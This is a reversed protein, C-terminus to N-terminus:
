KILDTVWSPVHNQGGNNHLLVPKSKTYNNVVRSGEVSFDNPDLFAISQFIDCNTDLNIIDQNKLYHQAAWDQINLKGDYQEFVKIFLPIPFLSGGCNIYKHPYPSPPYYQALDGNPFSCKELSWLGKNPEKYKSIIEEITALVVVDFCDSTLVHTYSSDLTKIYRLYTDFTSSWNYNPDNLAEYDYGFKNLSGLFELFGAHDPKNSHCVLKIKM